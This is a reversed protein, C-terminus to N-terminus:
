LPNFKAWVIDKRVIWDKDQMAIAFRHPILLLQKNKCLKGDGRRDQPRLGFRRALQKVDQGKAQGRGNWYTDGLNVWLSGTTNLVERTDCFVDVLKTIYEEPKLELGIQGAVGYDRQGYFPPSTVICDVLVGADRLWGLVERVEGCFILCSEDAYFAKGRLAPSEFVAQPLVVPQKALGQQEKATLGRKRRLAEGPHLSWNESYSAPALASDTTNGSAGAIDIDNAKTTVM